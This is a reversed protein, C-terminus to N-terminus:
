FMNQSFVSVVESHEKLVLKLGYCASNKRKFYLFFIRPIKIANCKQNEGLNESYQHDRNCTEIHYLRNTVDFFRFWCNVFERIRLAAFHRQFGKFHFLM